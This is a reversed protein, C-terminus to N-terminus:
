IIVLRSIPLPGFFTPVTQVSEGINDNDGGAIDIMRKETAPGDVPSQNLRPSFRHPRRFTKKLFTEKSHFTEVEFTACASFLKM